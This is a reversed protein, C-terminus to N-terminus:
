AMSEFGVTIAKVLLVEKAVNQLGNGRETWNSIQGCSSRRLRSTKAM